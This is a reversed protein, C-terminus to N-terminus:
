RYKKRAAELTSGLGALAQEWEPLRDLGSAELRRNELVAHRPRRAPRPFAESRVPAIPVDLGTARFLARAFEFWSAQGHCSAHFLGEFDGTLMSEVQVALSHVDTPTGVQDSVVRLPADGHKWAAGLRLMALAFNRGTESYLWSTRVIIAGADRALLRREGALKSDGYVNIPAAPDSEVYARPSEGDFVYDTSFHMLRAGTKVAAEALVGVATDNLLFADDRAAEAGDVDTWAACNVVWAPQLGAIAERVCAADTIDLEQRTLSHVKWASALRRALAGGLQGGGGTILVGRSM